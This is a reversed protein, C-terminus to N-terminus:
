IQSSSLDFERTDAPIEEVLSAADPAPALDDKNLESVCALDAVFLIRHKRSAACSRLVHIEQTIRGHPAM